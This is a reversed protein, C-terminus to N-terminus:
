KILNLVHELDEIKNLTININLTKINVTTSKNIYTQHKKSKRLLKLDESDIKNNKNRDLQKQKGHLRETMESKDKGCFRITREDDPGFNEKHYKCKQSNPDSEEYLGEMKYGCESCEGESMMGGCESCESENMYEENFELEEFGGMDDEENVDSKLKDIIEDAKEELSERLVKNVVSDIYNKLTKM